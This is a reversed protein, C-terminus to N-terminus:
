NERDEHLRETWVDGDEFRGEFEAFSVPDAAGGEYVYREILVALVVPLLLTVAILALLGLELTSLQVVSALM